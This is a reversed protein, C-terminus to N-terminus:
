AGAVSQPCRLGGYNATHVRVIQPKLAEDRIERGSPEHNVQDYYTSPAIPVGLETLQTCISEVGWRLGDPGDRHGQHDAIFRTILATAPRHFDARSATVTTTVTGNERAAERVRRAGKL